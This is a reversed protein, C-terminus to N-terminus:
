FLIAIFQKVHLDKTVDQSRKTKRICLKIVFTFM